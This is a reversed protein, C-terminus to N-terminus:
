GAVHEARPPAINHELQVAACARRRVQCRQPGRHKREAHLGNQVPPKRYRLNGTAEVPADRANACMM